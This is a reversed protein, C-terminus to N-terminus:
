FYVIIDCHYFRSLHNCKLRSSSLHNWKLSLLINEVSSNLTTSNCLIEIVKYLVCHHVHVIYVEVSLVFMCLQLNKNEKRKEHINFVKFIGIILLLMIFGKIKLGGWWNNSFFVRLTSCDTNWPWFRWVNKKMM